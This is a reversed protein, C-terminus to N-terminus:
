FNNKKKADILLRYTLHSLIFALAVGFFIPLLDWSVGLLVEQGYMDRSYRLFSM